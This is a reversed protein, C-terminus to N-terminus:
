IFAELHPARQDQPAMRFAASKFEQHVRKEKELAKDTVTWSDPGGALQRPIGHGGGGKKIVEGVVEVLQEPGGFSDLEHHKAITSLMSNTGSNANVYHPHREAVVISKKLYDTKVAAPHVTMLNINWEPPLEKSLSETFGEWAFRSAFYFVGGPFAVRGSVASMQCFLGGIQGTKPNEERMVRVAERALDVAGWFNTEFQQRAQENSIAEFDGFLTYGANNVVVDIRGFTTLANAIASKISDSSSIDLVIKLVNPANPLYDLDTLTRAAAVLRYSEDDNIYTAFAKGIGRSGGTIFWVATAPLSYTGPM